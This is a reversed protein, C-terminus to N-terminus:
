LGSIERKRASLRNHEYHLREAEDRFHNPDIYATKFRWRLYLLGMVVTLIANVVWADAAGAYAIYQVVTAFLYSCFAGMLGWGVAKRRKFIKGFFLTAGVCFIIFGFIILTIKSHYIWEMAVIGNDPEVFFATTFGNVMLSVGMFYKFASICREWFLEWTWNRM